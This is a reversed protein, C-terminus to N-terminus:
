RIFHHLTTSGRLVTDGIQETYGWSHLLGTVNDACAGVARLHDTHIEILVNGPRKDSEFLDRAGRLIALESGEVDIKVHTPIPIDGERLLSNITKSVVQTRITCGRVNILSPSAEGSYLDATGDRDSLAYNIVEISNEVLGNLVRNNLLQTRYKRYPEFAIVHAGALAAMITYKGQAAGIDWFVSPSNHIHILSEIISKVSQQETYKGGDSFTEWDELTEIWFRGTIGCAHFSYPKPLPVHPRNYLRDSLARLTRDPIVTHALQVAEVPIKSRWHVLQEVMHM